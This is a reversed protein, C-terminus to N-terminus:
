TCFISFFTFLLSLSLSLSLSLNSSNPSCVKDVFPIREYPSDPEFYKFLLEGKSELVGVKRMNSPTQYGHTTWETAGHQNYGNFRGDYVMSCDNRWDLSESTIM